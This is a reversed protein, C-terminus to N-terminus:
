LEVESDDITKIRKYNWSLLSKQIKVSTHTFFLFSLQNLVSFLVYVPVM